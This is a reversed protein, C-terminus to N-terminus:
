LLDAQDSVHGAVDRTTVSVAHRRYRGAIRVRNWHKTGKRQENGRGGFARAERGRQRGRRRRVLSETVSKRLAGSGDSKMTNYGSNPHPLARSCIRM